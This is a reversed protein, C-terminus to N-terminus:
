PQDKVAKLNESLDQRETLAETSVKGGQCNRAWKGAQKRKEHASKVIHLVIKLYQKSDRKEEQSCLSKPFLSKQRNWIELAQLLEQCLSPEMSIEPIFTKGQM